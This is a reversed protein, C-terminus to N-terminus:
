GPLTHGTRFRKMSEDHSLPINQPGIAPAETPPLVSCYVTVMGVKRSHYDERIGSFQEDLVGINKMESLRYIKWGGAEHLRGIGGTQYCLLSVSDKRSILTGLCFPEVKRYNGNYRFEIVRRSRIASCIMAIKRDRNSTTYLLHRIDPIRLRPCTVKRLSTTVATRTRGINAALGTTIRNKNM